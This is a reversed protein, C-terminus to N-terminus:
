KNDEEAFELTVIPFLDLNANDGFMEIVEKQKEEKLDDLLIELKM